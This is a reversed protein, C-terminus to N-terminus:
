YHRKNTNNRYYDRVRGRDDGRTRIDVDIGFDRFGEEREVRNNIRDLYIEEGKEKIKLHGRYIENGGSDVYDVIRNGSSDYEYEFEWDVDTNLASHEGITNMLGYTSTFSNYGREQLASTLRHYANWFSARESNTMKTYREGLMYKGKDVTDKAGATYSTKNTGVNNLNDFFKFLEKNSMRKRYTYNSLIKTRFIEVSRQDYKSTNNALSEIRRKTKRYLKEILKEKGQRDSSSFLVRNRERIKNLEASTKM